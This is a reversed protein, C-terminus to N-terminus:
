RTTKEDEQGMPKLKDPLLWAGEARAEKAEAFKGQQQLAEALFMYNEGSYPDYALALKFCTEALEFRRSFLHTKGLDAWLRPNEEDLRVAQDQLSEGEIIGLENLYGGWNYIERAVFGQTFFDRGGGFRSKVFRLV